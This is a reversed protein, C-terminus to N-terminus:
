APGELWTTFSPVKEHNGQNVNDFNQMLVNFSVMTSFIVANKKIIHGVSTTPGMYWAMDAAAGKLHGSM